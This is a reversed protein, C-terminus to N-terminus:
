LSTSINIMKGQVYHSLVVNDFVLFEESTNYRLIIIQMRSIVFMLISVISYLQFMLNFRSFIYTLELISRFVKIM